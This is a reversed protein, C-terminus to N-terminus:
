TAMVLLGNLKYSELDPLLWIENPRVKHFSVVCYRKHEFYDTSVIINFQFQHYNKKLIEELAFAFALGQQLLFRDTRKGKKRHKRNKIYMNIHLKNAFMEKGTLDMFLDCPLEADKKFVEFFVADDVIAVGKNLIDQLKPELPYKKILFSIDRESIIKKMIKNTRIM